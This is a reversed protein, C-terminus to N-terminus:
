PWYLWWVVVVRKTSLTHSLGRADVGVLALHLSGRVLVVPAKTGKTYWPGRWFALLIELM